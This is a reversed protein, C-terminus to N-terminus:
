KGNKWEGEYKRGDPWYFIGMGEKKDDIYEGDYRRNDPWTFLGRGEM